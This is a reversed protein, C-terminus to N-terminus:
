RTPAPPAVVVPGEGSQRRAKVWAQAAAAPPGPPAAGRAWTALLEECAARVEPAPDYVAFHRLIPVAEADGIAALAGILNVKGSPSATHLAIEIQPLARRRFRALRQTAPGVLSDTREGLVRIEAGIERYTRDECGALATVAFAATAGLVVLGRM